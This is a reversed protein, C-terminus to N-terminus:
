FVVLKSRVRVSMCHWVFYYMLFSGQGYSLVHPRYIWTNESAPLLVLSCWHTQDSLFGFLACLSTCILGSEHTVLSVEAKTSHVNECRFGLLLYVQKVFCFQWVVYDRM